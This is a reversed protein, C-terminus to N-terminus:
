KKGKKFIAKNIKGPLKCIDLARYLKKQDSNARSNKRIHIAQDDEGRMTTTVRVHTSLKNRITEWSDTIGHQGFCYRISHSVHYALMTIFLHADVRREKQHYVPRFGLESKMSRFSSEVQTLNTYIKWFREVRISEANSRLRYIGNLKKKEKEPQLDWKVDVANKKNEDEVVTIKYLGSVRSHREKIRGIRTHVKLLTKTGRSKSLGARVQEMDEEFRQRSKSKIGEEKRAKAVSDIYLDWESMEENRVLKARVDKNGKVVEVFEGEDPIAVKNRAVVVFTLGKSKLWTLNDETAIGADMVVMRERMEPRPGMLRDLMTKLTSPESVNGPLVESKRPFGQGDLALGLTVLPADSRKEKSRGFRAKDNYKGSGEFFTNTLDYLFISEDLTFVKAETQYLSEELKEQKAYLQDAVEYFRSLSTDNYDFDILEGLSSTERLWIFSSRDSGPNLLRATISGIALARQASTFGNDRLKTDIGLRKIMELCVVEGGFSRIDGNEVSDLDVRVWKMEDERTKKNDGMETLRTSSEKAVIKKVANNAVQELDSETAPLLVNNIELNNPDAERLFLKEEILGCFEKHREDPVQFNVGLNLITRQRPKGDIRVSEVLRYSEYIKGAKREKSKRIYM